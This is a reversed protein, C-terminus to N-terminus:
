LGTHLALLSVLVLCLPVPCCGCLGLFTGWSRAWERGCPRHGDQPAEALLPRGPGECGNATEPPLESIPVEAQPLEGPSLIETPVWLVAESGM